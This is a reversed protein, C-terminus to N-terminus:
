MEELILKISDFTIFSLRRVDSSDWFPRFRDHASM